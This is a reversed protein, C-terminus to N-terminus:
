YDVNAKSPLFATVSDKGEFLGHWAADLEPRPFGAFPNGKVHVPITRQEYQLASSRALAAPVTLGVHLVQVLAKPSVHSYM